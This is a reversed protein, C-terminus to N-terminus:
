AEAPGGGTGFFTRTGAGGHRPKNYLQEYLSDALLSERRLAEKLARIYDVTEAVEGLARLIAKMGEESVVYADAPIQVMEVEIKKTDATM